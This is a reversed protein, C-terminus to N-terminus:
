LVTWRGSTLRKNHRSFLWLGILLGIAAGHTPQAATASDRSSPGRSRFIGMTDYFLCHDVAGRPDHCANRLHFDVGLGPLCGEREVFNDFFKMSMLIALAWM